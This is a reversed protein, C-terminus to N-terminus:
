IFSCTLFTLSIHFSVLSSCCCCSLSVCIYACTLVEAIIHGRFNHNQSKRAILNDDGANQQFFQGIKSLQKQLGSSSTNNNLVGDNNRSSMQKMLGRGRSSAQKLLGGSGHTRSPQPSRGSAQKYLLSAPSSLNSGGGGGPSRSSNQRRLKAQRILRKQEIQAQLQQRAEASTMNGTVNSLEPPHDYGNQGLISKLSLIIRLVKQFNFFFNSMM